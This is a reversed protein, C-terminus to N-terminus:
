PTELARKGSWDERLTPTLGNSISGPVRCREGSRGHGVVLDIHGFSPACPLPAGGRFLLKRTVVAPLTSIWLWYSYLSSFRWTQGRRCM